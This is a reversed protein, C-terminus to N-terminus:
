RTNWFKKPNEYPDVSTHNFSEQTGRINGLWVDFGIELLLYPLSNKGHFYVWDAASSELGHVFLIPYKGANLVTKNNENRNLIRHLGLIYGDETITHHIEADYGTERIASLQLSPFNQFNEHSDEILKIIALYQM